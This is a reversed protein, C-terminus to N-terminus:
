SEGVKLSYYVHSDRDCALNCNNNDVPSVRWQLIQGNWGFNLTCQKYVRRYFYNQQTLDPM